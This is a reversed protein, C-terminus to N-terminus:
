RGNEIIDAITKNAINMYNMGNVIGFCVKNFRRLADEISAKRGDWHFFTINTGGCLHMIPRKWRDLEFSGVIMNHTKIDISETNSFYRIEGFLDFAKLIDKMREYAINYKVASKMKIEKRDYLPLRRDRGSKEM